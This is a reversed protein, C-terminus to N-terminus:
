AAFGLLKKKNGRFLLRRLLEIHKCRKKIPVIPLARPVVMYRQETETVNILEKIMPRNLLVEWDVGDDATILDHLSSNNTSKKDTLEATIKMGNELLKEEQDLNETVMDKSTLQLQLELCTAELRKCRHSKDELEMELFSIEQIAEKLQVKSASLQHELGFNTLNLNEFHDTMLNMINNGNNQEDCRMEALEAKLSHIEDDRKCVSEKLIKNEQEVESLQKIMFSIRTDVSKFRSKPNAKPHGPARKRVLLRLKQRETELQQRNAMDAYRGRVKHKFLNNGREAPDLRSMLANFKTTTNSIQDHVDKITEDKKHLAKTLRANEVTLNALKKKAEIYKSELRVHAMEIMLKQDQKMKTSSLEWRCNKLAANLHVLREIAAEKQQLENELEQKQIAVLAEARERASNAEQATKAHEAMLKDKANCECLLCAVQEHLNRVTEELAIQKGYSLKWHNGHDRDDELM